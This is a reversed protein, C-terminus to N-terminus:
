QRRQGFYFGIITGYIAAVPPIVTTALKAIADAGDPRLLCALVPVLSLALFGITLAMAIRARLRDDPRGITTPAELERLKLETAREERPATSLTM